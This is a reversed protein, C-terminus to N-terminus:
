AADEDAAVGEEGIEDIDIIVVLKPEEFILRICTFGYEVFDPQPMDNAELLERMRTEAKIKQALTAM